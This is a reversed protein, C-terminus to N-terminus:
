AASGTLLKQMPVNYLRSLQYLKEFPPLADREWRYVAQISKVGTAAAVDQVSCGSAERATKLRANMARRDFPFLPTWVEQTNKMLIGEQNHIKLDGSILEM